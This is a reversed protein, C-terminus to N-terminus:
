LENGSEYCLPCNICVKSSKKNQGQPKHMEMIYDINELYQIKTWLGICVAVVHVFNKVKSFM